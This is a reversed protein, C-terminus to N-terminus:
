QIQPGRLPTGSFETLEFIRRLSAPKFIGNPDKENVIGVVVIDSLTFEKKPRDERQFGNRCRSILRRITESHAMRHVHSVISLAHSIIFEFVGLRSKQGAPRM